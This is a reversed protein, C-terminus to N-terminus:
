FYNVNEQKKEAAELAEKEEEGNIGRNKFGQREREKERIM